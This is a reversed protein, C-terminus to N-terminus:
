LPVCHFVLEEFNRESMIEIVMTYEVLHGRRFLQCLAPNSDRVSQVWGHMGLLACVVLVVGACLSFM